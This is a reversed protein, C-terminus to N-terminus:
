YEKGNPLLACCEVGFEEQITNIMLEYDGLDKSIHILTIKDCNALDMNQLHVILNNLSQHTNLQRHYKIKKFAENDNENNKEEKKIKYMIEELKDDVYNCEIFIERFAFKSLDSKCEMFDTIFLITDKDNTDRIAFGFCENKGHNVNFPIFLLENIKFIKYNELVNGKVNYKDFTEKTCYLPIDYTDIYEISCSHDLHCHSTICANIDTFEINNDNLLDLIKQAEVGCELIIKTTNAETTLYYLNGNSGSGYSKIKIM